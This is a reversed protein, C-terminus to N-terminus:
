ANREGLVEWAHDSLDELSHVTDIRMDVAMVVWHNTLQTELGMEISAELVIDKEDVLM